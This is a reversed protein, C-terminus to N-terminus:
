FIWNIEGGLIIANYSENTNFYTPGYAPDAIIELAKEINYRYKKQDTGAILKFSVQNSFFYELSIEGVIYDYNSLVDDDESGSAKNKIFTLDSELKLIRPLIDWRFTGYLYSNYNNQDNTM